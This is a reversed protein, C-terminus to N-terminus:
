RQSEPPPPIQSLGILDEAACQRSKRLAQKVDELSMDPLQDVFRIQTRGFRFGINQAQYLRWFEEETEPHSGSFPLNLQRLVSGSFVVFAFNNKFLVEYLKGSPDRVPHYCIGDQLYMPWFIIAKDVGAAEYLALDRRSLDAFFEVVDYEKSKSVIEMAASPATHFMLFSDKTLSRHPSVAWVTHACASACPGYAEVPSKSDVILRGLRIGADATGGPSVILVQRPGSQFRPTLREVLSDSINQAIVIPDEAENQTAAGARPSCAAILTSAAILIAVALKRASLLRITM